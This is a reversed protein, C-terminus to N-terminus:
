AHWHVSYKACSVSVRPFSESSALVRVCIRDYGINRRYPSAFLSLKNVLEQRHNSASSRANIVAVQDKFLKPDKRRLCCPGARIHLTPDVVLWAHIHIRCPRCPFRSLFASRCVHQCASVSGIRKSNLHIQFGTNCVPDYREGALGLMAASTMSRTKVFLSSNRRSRSLWSPLPYKFSTSTM